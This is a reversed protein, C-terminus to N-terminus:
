HQVAVRQTAIVQGDAVLVVVYLGAALNQASITLAGKSALTLSHHQLVRGLLDRVELRVAKTTQLEYRVNLKETAPNPYVQFLAAQNAQRSALQTGNDQYEVQEEKALRCACNPEYPLLLRCATWAAPTGSQAVTRLKARTSETLSQFPRRMQSMEGQAEFLLAFSMLDSNHAHTSRLLALARQADAPRYATRYCMMLWSTLAAHVEGQQDPLTTLYTEVSTLDDAQGAATTLTQLLANRRATPLEPLRLSDHATRLAEASVAVPSATGPM